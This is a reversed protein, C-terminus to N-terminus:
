AKKGKPWLAIVVYFVLQVAFVFSMGCVMLFLAQSVGGGFEHILSTTEQLGTSSAAAVGIRGRRVSNAFCLPKGDIIATGCDPGMVLLGKETALRKLSIEDEIGVNDSFLMVHLGADLAKRAERAAFAGPLSILALNADPLVKLASEIGAPRCAPTKGDEPKRRGLLEELRALASDAANADAADVAAVLDGATAGEFARDFLGMDELLALNMGTGLTVVAERVRPLSKLERNLSMLFVSDFYSGKRFLFRKVSKM